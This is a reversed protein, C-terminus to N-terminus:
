AKEITILSEGYVYRDWRLKISKAQGYRFRQALVKNTECFDGYYYYNGNKHKLVWLGDM